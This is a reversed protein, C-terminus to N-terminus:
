AAMITRIYNQTSVPMLSLWQAGGNKIANFVTGEGTNYAALAKSYDGGFENSLRAMLQAAGNLASQPDYPNVGLSAATSPMFQAIGVAGSSSQAQPDFNSEIQIQRMFYTPNIGARQAAQVAMQQYYGAGQVAVTTPPTNQQVAAQTVQVPQAQAPPPTPQATKKIQASQTPQGTQKPVTHTPTARPVIRQTRYERFQIPDDEMIADATGQGVPSQHQVTHPHHTITASQTHRQGQVIGLTAAFLVGCTAGIAIGKYLRPLHHTSPLQIKETIPDTVVETVLDESEANESLFTELQTRNITTETQPDSIAMLRCPRLLSSRTDPTTNYTELTTPSTTTTDTTITNNSSRQNANMMKSKRIEKTRVLTNERNETNHIGTTL